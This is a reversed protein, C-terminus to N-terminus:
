LFYRIQPQPNEYLKALESMLGETGMEKSINFAVSAALCLKITGFAKRDLIDWETDAMSTPKKTKKRLPQYLYDEM